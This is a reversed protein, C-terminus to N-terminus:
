PCNTEFADNLHQFFADYNLGEGERIKYTSPIKPGVPESVVVMDFKVEEAMIEGSVTITITYELLFSKYREGPKKKLKDSGNYEFTSNQIKKFRLVDWDETIIHKFDCYLFYNKIKKQSFAVSGTFLLILVFLKNM